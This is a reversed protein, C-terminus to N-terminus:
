HMCELADDRFQQHAAKYKDVATQLPENAAGPLAALKQHLDDISRAQADIHGAARDHSTSDM